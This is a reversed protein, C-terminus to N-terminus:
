SLGISVFKTELFEELGLRGGEKGLGSQKVGGFPAQVTGPLPDNVGIIGYELREALRVARSLDTTYFFAALGYPMENALRLVEEETRFPILPA